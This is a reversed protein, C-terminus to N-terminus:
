KKTEEKTNERGCVTCTYPQKIGKPVEKKMNHVRRGHGYLHDQFDHHCSCRIIAM